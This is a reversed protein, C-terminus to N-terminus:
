KVFSIRQTGDFVAIYRGPSLASVDVAQSGEISFSAVKRGTLDVVELVRAGVANFHLMRAAPQPWLKLKKQPLEGVGTANGVEVEVIFSCGDPDNITLAYTGPLVGTLETGQTGDNWTFTWDPEPDEVTVVVNGDPAEAGSADVVTFDVEPEFAERYQEFFLFGALIALPACEGHDFAGGNVAEVELAGNATMWEATFISNEWAVQTDATCGYLRTPAEPVWDYLDNDQMAIRIPHQPDNLYAQFVEPQLMESPVSPLQGNIFGISNSGDFLDPLVAAYEPLFIDELEDYLTGYVLEYSMIVYPLYGPTPYPEGNTLVEAQIGSVDYPGSMPASATVTFEDAAEEQIMKHLAMAAHGGQSYGCVFVQENLEFGLEEKLEKAARLLNLSTTAQSEAHVYPHLGESDGLGIYDPMAVAYGVSALVVGINSEGNQYSPVNTKNAVTGHQYSALPLGCDVGVPLCLAGSVDVSDGNPHLTRYNIKYFDVEYQASVVGDPVGLQDLIQTVQNISINELLTAEQARSNLSLLAFASSLVFTYRCKPM